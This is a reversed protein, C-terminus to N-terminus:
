KIAVSDGSYNKKYYWTVITLDKKKCTDPRLTQHYSHKGDKVFYTQHLACSVFFCIGILLLLKKM